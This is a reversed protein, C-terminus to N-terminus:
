FSGLVVGWALGIEGLRDVFVLAGFIIGLNYLIPALSYLFFRKLGQLVSGFVMSIGLFFQALLLVQLFHATALQKWQPFGPAIFSALPEAFFSFFFSLSAFLIALVHLVTNTFEWAQKSAVGDRKLYQCFLPIFSASLAGLVFLNFILDPFKFAAYYIDLTNGAGFVGALIRDRVLGIIRSGFSLFGILFAAGVLTKSERHLLHFM